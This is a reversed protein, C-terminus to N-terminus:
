TLLTKLFPLSLTYSVWGCHVARVALERGLWKFYLENDYNRNQINHTVYGRSLGTGLGRCLTALMNRQFQSQLYLTKM